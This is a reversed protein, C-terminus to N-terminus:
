CRSWSTTDDCRGSPAGSGTSTQGLARESMIVLVDGAQLTEFLRDFRQEWTASGEPAPHKFALIALGFRALDNRQEVVSPCTTV